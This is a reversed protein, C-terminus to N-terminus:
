LDGRLAENYIHQAPGFPPIVYEAIAFANDADELGLEDAEQKRLATAHARLAAAVAPGDTQVDLLRMKKQVLAENSAITDLALAAALKVNAEMDILTQISEDSLLAHRYTVVISTNAAPATTFSILGVEPDLTYGASQEVGDFYVTETGDITPFQVLQYDTTVGDATRQARDYQAMDSTLVRIQAITM